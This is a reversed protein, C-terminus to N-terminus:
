LEELLYGTEIDNYKKLIRNEEELRRFVSNYKEM